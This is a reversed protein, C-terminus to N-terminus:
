KVTGGAESDSADNFTNAVVVDVEGGMVLTVSNEEESDM